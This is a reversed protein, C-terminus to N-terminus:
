IGGLPNGRLLLKVYQARTYAWPDPTNDQSLKGRFDALSSYGKSEMWASLEDLITTVQGIKNKYLTSVVQVADAGALLMKAVDKGGMIGTSAVISGTINGHLLGAYRLPLRNDAAASLNMPSTISEQKVNIDPQFLRNFLVFGDVGEHDLRHIVNLTNAYFPSLKVGVPISVRGKIERVVSIQDAEIDAGGLAPDKPVAYFNLELGDVGTDALQEAYEVWTDPSTANLSAIVPVSVADKVRRVFHLHEATGGHEVHPFLTTMEAGLDSFEEMEQEFKLRELQIQEEFLSKLVIAGVGADELNRVSDLDATLNSAGAVVPNELGLGMYTTNLEM